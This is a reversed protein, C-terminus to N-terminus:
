KSGVILGIARAVAKVDQTTRCLQCLADIARAAKMTKALPADPLATITKM